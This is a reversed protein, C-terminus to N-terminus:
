VSAVDTSGPWAKPLSNWNHWVGCWSHAPQANCMSHCCRSFALAGRRCTVHNNTSLNHRQQPTIHQSCPSAQQQRTHPSLVLAAHSPAAAAAAPCGAPPHNYHLLWLPLRVKSQHVHRAVTNRRHLASSLLACPLWLSM